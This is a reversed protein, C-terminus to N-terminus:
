LRRRARLPHGAGRGKVAEGIDAHLSDCFGIARARELVDASADHGAIQSALIAGARPM